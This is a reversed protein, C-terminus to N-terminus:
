EGPLVVEVWQGHKRANITNDYMAQSYVTPLYFKGLYSANLLLRFTKTQKSNLNYYTYVRDDRIDQYEPLSSNTFFEMNILRTNIIEWGSPFIQHLEMQEYRNRWVGPHTVTVEAVFDTGQELSSPDIKKGDMLYYGISLELKNSADTQDGTIPKGELIIRAFLPYSFNNKVNINTDENFPLTIAEQIIPKTSIIKNSNNGDISYEFSMEKSIKNGGVFKGVALLAYSTTQTSYWRKLNLEESITKLLVFADSQKGMLTLTELIMGKDRLGSGFTNGLESYDEVKYDLSEILKEAVEPKGALQYSAALRFKATKSLGTSSLLRNMAGVEPDGVLALTYLRYAQSLDSRNANNSWNRAENRQYKKWKNLFGSPLDYGKHFAEILFHGAYTTGWESADTHGPWYSLGGSAVQFSALRNIAYKINQETRTKLQDSLEVLNDLYLQPFAGSTTQEICGHPYQILYNLREGLNLPPISSIELICKNTGEIGFTKIPQTWEKGGEIMESIVDVVVPNPNRIELEINYIANESGSRAEIDVKGVGTKPKVLLKFNVLQDGKESFTIQKTNSGLVDFMNNSKVTVSVDKVNDEMAFVSVPLEVTEGPGLVRPLTGLVTLPKRVPTTKEDFGYAGKNRCNGNNKCFWCVRCM